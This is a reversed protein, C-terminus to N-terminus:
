PMGGGGGRRVPAPLSCAADLFPRGFLSGLCMKLSAAGEGGLSRGAMDLPGPRPLAGVHRRSQSCAARKASPPKKVHTRAHTRAHTAYPPTPAATPAPELGGGVVVVVVVGVGKCLSALAALPLPSLGAARRFGQAPHPRRIYATRAQV